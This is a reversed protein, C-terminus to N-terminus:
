IISATSNYFTQKKIKLHKMSRAQSFFSSSFFFCLLFSFGEIISKELINKETHNIDYNQTKNM